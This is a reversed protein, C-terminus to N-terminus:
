DDREDRAKKPCARGRRRRERRLLKHIRLRARRTVRRVNCRSGTGPPSAHMRVRRVIGHEDRHVRTKEAVRIGRRRRKANPAVRGDRESSSHLSSVSRVHRGDVRLKVADRTEETMRHAGHADRVVIPEDDRVVADHAPRDRIWDGRRVDRLIGRQVVRRIRRRRRKASPTVIEDVVGGHVDLARIFLPLRAEVRLRARARHFRAIRTVHRRADADGRRRAARRLSAHVIMRKGAANQYRARAM